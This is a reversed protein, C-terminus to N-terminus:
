RVTDRKIYRRKDAKYKYYKRVYQRTERPLGVGRIVRRAGGNYAALVNIESAKRGGAKLIQPLRRGFYWKAIRRSIKENRLDSRRIRTGMKQNFDRLCVRTIQHAGFAGSKENYMQRGNSSEIQRIVDLDIQATANASGSLVILVIISLIRM